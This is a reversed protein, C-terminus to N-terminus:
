MSYEKMTVRIAEAVEKREKQKHDYLSVECFEPWNRSYQKTTGKEHRQLEDLNDQKAQLEALESQLHLLNRAALRRFRKFIASTQDPDSAIFEALSPYGILYHPPDTGKELDVMEFREEHFCRFSSKVVCYEGTPKASLDYRKQRDTM